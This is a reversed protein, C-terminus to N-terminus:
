IKQAPNANSLEQGIMSAWYNIYEQMGKWDAVNETLSDQHGSTPLSMSFVTEGTVADDFRVEVTSEEMSVLAGFQSTGSEEGSGAGAAVNRVVASMRLTGEMPQTVATWQQPLSRNLASFFKIRMTAVDKESFLQPQGEPQEIQLPEIIVKHFDSQSLTTDSSAGIQEELVTDTATSAEVAETTETTEVAAVIAAEETAVPADVNKVTYANKACGVTTTLILM